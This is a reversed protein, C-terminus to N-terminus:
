PTASVEMPMAVTGHGSRSSSITGIAHAGRLGLWVSSALSRLGYAEGLLRRRRVRGAHGSRPQGPARGWRRTWESAGCPECLPIDLTLAM